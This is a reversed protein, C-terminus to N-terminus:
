GPEVTLAYEIAQELTMARGEAWAASFAADGMGARVSAVCSEHTPRALVTIYDGVTERVVEAAGFLRAAKQLHGKVSAVWALGELSRGSTWWEVFPRSLVLSEVYRAAAQETDGQRRAAGGQISLIYAIMYRDGLAKMLALSETLLRSAEEHDSLHSALIGLQSLALATLWTDGLARSSHLSEEYLARARDDNGQRLASIGLWILLSAAHKQDGLRRCLALGQEGLATARAHDGLRWAFYVAAAITKPLVFPSADTGRALATDLWRRAETWYGRVFWFWYLAGALRVTAEAGDSETTSWELAARFNDHETELRELWALQEPGRLNPEAEEALRLYWDRHRRRVIAAEHAEGLRDRGYQRVTELLRHRAEGRQTEALVLSKDVLSTLLDLIKDTEVGNGSSVAEAAELTWGGTFVSLRRLLMREPESLLHYSWDMAAQLTQHRPLVTRSGGTLLRFRDDLRAAIQEVALVKVRAAALEIALPIGDLRKCVQAVAPANQNTVAFGPTTVVARDVFLRVADYLVLDVSSPLHHVDDPLSLSPVRWVTEGPVGLGERSTALILVQPCARLLAAALDACAALLHECNDLVLLLAKPRLADVLTETMDRGPQEPVGLASAVTKPVLAPDAIPALEALWVGDPYGKTVDAAVQLALRTKGAGGSGTLTLLRTASLLRRVEAQEQERGIFSTLQVPLNNPFVDLSKVPPFDARLDPHVVQLLHEPERLDKLRHTGLDRLSVGPPLDPAALIGVAQSLLIQGGHGASCVRAARHVDLGVYGGTESVPEGTHLGMRVRLLAGDPWAHGTLARQAAVATGVADRARSFAVLFADGQTDVEQGHGEAFAERLLRRHEALVEAYRRDGLRQLLTTSGEIDTFLFTVTGTPLAPM